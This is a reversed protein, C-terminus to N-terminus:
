YLILKSKKEGLDESINKKTVYHIILEVLLFDKKEQLLVGIEFKSSQPPNIKKNNHEKFM